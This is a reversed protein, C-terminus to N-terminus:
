FSIGQDSVTSEDDSTLDSEDAIHYLTNPTLHKVFDDPLNLEEGESDM